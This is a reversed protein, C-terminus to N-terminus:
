KLPIVLPDKGERSRLSEHIICMQPIKWWFYKFYVKKLHVRKYFLSLICLRQM